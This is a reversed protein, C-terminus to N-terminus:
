RKALKRYITNRSIGLQKSALSINGGRERVVREITSLELAQLTGAGEHPLPAAATNAHLSPAPAAQLDALFDDSLHERRVLAEGGALAAATRLVAELQHLNGPWDHRLLLGQVETDLLPPTAGCAAALMRRALVLLDSRERLPPLRVALGNLRLYLDDRFEHRAVRERLDGGHAAIVAV